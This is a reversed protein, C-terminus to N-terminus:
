VKVALESEQRGNNSDEVQTSYNKRVTFDGERVGEMDKGTGENEQRRKDGDEIQTIDNKRVTSDGGERVGDMIKGPGKNKLTGTM